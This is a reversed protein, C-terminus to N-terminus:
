IFSYYGVGQFEVLSGLPLEVVKLLALSVEIVWCAISSMFFNSFLFFTSLFSVCVTFHFLHHLALLLICWSVVGNMTKMHLLFLTSSINKSDLGCIIYSFIEIESKLNLFYKRVYEDKCVGTGGSKHTSKRGEWIRLIKM